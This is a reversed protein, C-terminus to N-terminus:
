EVRIRISFNREAGKPPAPFPAAKRVLRLAAQDLRASGSSRAVSLAGLQGNGAITFAVTAMGEIGLSPRDVRALQRMVLGPYADRAANGPQADNGSASAQQPSTAAVSGTTQGARQNRDANGTAAPRTAKRSEPAPDPIHRAEFAASRRQPRLSRLLDTADAAAAVTLPPQPALAISPL